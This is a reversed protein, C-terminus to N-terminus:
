KKWVRKTNIYWDQIFSFRDAPNVAHDVNIGNVAKNVAYIYYPQYLFVAPKEDFIVAQMPLYSHIRTDQNNSKRAAELYKDVEINTYNSLNLGPDNIQSSHWYVYPDPDFGLNEGFLLADYNRSKIFQSELDGINLSNVDVEIGIEHWNQKIINAALTYEPNDSTVLRISLRVNDKERTGDGDVDQWKGKELVAKAKEIDHPLNSIDPNHGMFGELIPTNIIKGQQYVVENLIRERDLGYYLAEKVYPDRLLPKSNQNIFVATYQPLSIDFVQAAKLSSSMMPWDATLVHSISMVEKTKYADYLTQYDPYFKFIITELHPKQGYYNDFKNMEISDYIGQEDVKIKSIKYPGSGIPKSNFDIDDIKSPDIKELLHKPLIGTTLNVPFPSFVEKLNFKVTNEDIKEIQVDQWNAALTGPYKPNTILQFTFVVDDATLSQNDHWKLNKRLYVTYSKEDESIEWKEALDGVLQRNKDFVLLGSFILKSLDRDVDNLQSLIPNILKPQGAMGEIYTGGDAPLSDSHNIYYRYGFYGILIIIAPIFLYVSYRALLLFLDRWSKPLILGGPRFRRWSQNM